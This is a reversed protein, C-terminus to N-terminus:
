PRGGYRVCMWVRARFMLCCSLVSGVEVKWIALGFINYAAVPLREFTQDHIRRMECGADRGAKVEDVRYWV